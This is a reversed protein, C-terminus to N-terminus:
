KRGIKQMEHNKQMWELQGQLLRNQDKLTAENEKGALFYGILGAAAVGFALLLIQRRNATQLSAIHEDRAALLRRLWDCEFGLKQTQSELQRVRADDLDSMDPPEFAIDNNSSILEDSPLDVSDSRSFLDDNFDSSDVASLPPTLPGLEFGLEFDSDELALRDTDPSTGNVFDRPLPQSDVRGIEENEGPVQTRNDDNADM